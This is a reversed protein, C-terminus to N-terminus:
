NASPQTDAFVTRLTELEEDSYNRYGDLKHIPVARCAERASQHSFKGKDLLHRLLLSKAPKVYEVNELQSRYSTEGLMLNAIYHMIFYPYFPLLSLPPKAWWATRSPKSRLWHGNITTLAFTALKSGSKAPSHAEHLKRRDFFLNYRRSWESIFSNHPAGAIFWTTLLRDSSIGQFVFFGSLRTKPELWATLDGSLAVGADVWVGGFKSLLALRIANARKVPPLAWFELPLDDHSLYEGLTAPTLMRIDDVGGWRHWSEKCFEIIHPLAEDQSEWYSWLIKPILKM